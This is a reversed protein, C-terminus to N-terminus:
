VPIGDTMQWGDVTVVQFRKSTGNAYGVLFEGPFISYEVWAIM